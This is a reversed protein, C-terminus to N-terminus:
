AISGEAEKYPPKEAGPAVEGNGAAPMPPQEPIEIEERAPLGLFERTWSEGPRVEESQILRWIVESLLAIDKEELPLTFNPYYREAFNFDILDRILNEDVYEEITRKLRAIYMALVDQHVKAQALSGTSNTSQDTALTQGLISKTIQRGCFDMAEEFHKSDFPVAMFEANQDGVLVLATENQINGLQALLAAKVETSAVHPVTGKAVPLGYKELGILWWQMIKDKAWAYRYASRLDSLGWPQGYEAQYTMIAFKAPDLPERSGLINLKMGTLNNYDDLDFLITEPDKCKISAYGIKGDDMLTYNKEAIGVGFTLACNLIEEIRDDLSGPMANFAQEVFAAQETAAEYGPEGEQISSVIEWGKQLVGARKIFLASKVDTDHRISKYAAIGKRDVLDDQVTAWGMAQSSARFAQSKATEGMDPRKRLKNKITEITGAM